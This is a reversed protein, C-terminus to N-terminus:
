NFEIIARVAPNSEFTEPRPIGEMDKVTSFPLFIALGKALFLVSIIFRNSGIGSLISFFDCLM